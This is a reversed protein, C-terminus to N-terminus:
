VQILQRYSVHRHRQQVASGALGPATSRCPPTMTRPDTCPPQHIPADPFFQRVAQGNIRPDDTPVPCASDAPQDILDSTVEVPTKADLRTNLAIAGDEDMSAHKAEMLALNGQATLASDAIDNMAHLTIPVNIEYGRPDLDVRHLKLFPGRQVGRENRSYSLGVPVGVFTSSDRM